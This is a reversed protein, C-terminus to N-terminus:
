LRSPRTQTCARRDRRASARQRSQPSNRDQSIDRPDLQSLRSSEPRLGAHRDEKFLAFLVPAALRAMAYNDEIFVFPLPVLKAARRFRTMSAIAGPAVAIKGLAGIAIREPSTSNM